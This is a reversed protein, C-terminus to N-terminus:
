HWSRLTFKRMTLVELRLSYSSSGATKRMYDKNIQHRNFKVNLFPLLLYVLKETTKDDIAASWRAARPRLRAHQTLTHVLTFLAPPKLKVGGFVSKKLNNISPSLIQWLGYEVFEFVDQFQVM